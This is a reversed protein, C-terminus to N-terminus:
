DREASQDFEARMLSNDNSMEGRVRSKLSAYYDAKLAAKAQAMKASADARAAAPTPGEGVVTLTRPEPRRRSRAFRPKLEPAPKDTKRPREADRKPATNEASRRAQSQANAAELHAQDLAAKARGRLRTIFAPEDM